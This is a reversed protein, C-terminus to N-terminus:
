RVQRIKEPPQPRPLRPYEYAGIDWGTRAVGARDVGMEAIYWPQTALNLGSYSNTPVYSVNLPPLTPVFCGAGRSHADSQYHGTGLAPRAINNAYQSYWNGSVHGPGNAGFNFTASAPGYSVSWICFLTNTGSQEYSNYDSTLTYNNNSGQCRNIFIGTSTNKTIGVKQGRFVNNIFYAHIPAADFASDPTTVVHSGNYIPTGSPAIGNNEFVNHVAYFTHPGSYTNMGCEGNGVVLNNIAYWTITGPYLNASGNFNIGWLNSIATCNIVKYLINVAGGGDEADLGSQEGLDFGKLNFSSLCNVITVKGNFAKIGIGSDNNVVSGLHNSMTCGTVLGSVYKHNDGLLIGTIYNRDGDFTCNTITVNRAKRINLQGDGAGEADTLYRKGNNFFSLGDFVLNTLAAGTGAKEKAQLGGTDSNKLVLGRFTVGDIQCLILGIGIAMGDGDLMATTGTGWTSDAQIILNTYGNKYFGLSSSALWAFGGHASSHTTGAKINFTTNDPVRGSPSSCIAGWNTHLYNSGNALYTGPITQFPTQRSTGDNADNGDAFDVYFTAAGALYPLLIMAVTALDRSYRSCRAMETICSFNLM